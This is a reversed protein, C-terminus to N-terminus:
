HIKMTRWTERPNLKAVVEYLPDCPFQLVLKRFLQFVKDSEGGDGTEPLPQLRVELQVDLLTIDYHHLPLRKCHHLLVIIPRCFLNEM